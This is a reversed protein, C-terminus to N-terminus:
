RHDRACRAVASTRFKRHMMALLRSRRLSADRFKDRLTDPDYRCVGNLDAFITSTPLHAEHGVTPTPQTKTGAIAITGCLIPFTAPLVRAQRRPSQKESFGADGVARVDVVTVHTSSKIPHAPYGGTAPCSM